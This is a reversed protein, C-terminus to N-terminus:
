YFTVSGPIATARDMAEQMDEQTLRRGDPIRVEFFYSAKLRPYRPGFLRCCVPEPKDSFLSMECELVFGTVFMVMSPSRLNVRLRMQKQGPWRCSIHSGDSSMKVDAAVNGLAQDLYELQPLAVTDATYPTSTGRWHADFAASFPRPRDM